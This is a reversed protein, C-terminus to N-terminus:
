GERINRLISHFTYHGSAGRGCGQWGNFFRVWHLYTKETSLSYHRYRIRERGRDLLRPSRASATGPKM